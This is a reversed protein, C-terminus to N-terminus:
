APNGPLSAGTIHQGLKPEPMAALVGILYCLADGLYLKSVM